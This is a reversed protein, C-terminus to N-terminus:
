GADLGKSPAPGSRPSRSGRRQYFRLADLDDNTTVLWLRAARREDAVAELLRTGVGAQKV